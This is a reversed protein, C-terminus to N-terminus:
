TRTPYLGGQNGSPVTVVDVVKRPLADPEAEGQQTTVNPVQPKVAHKGM